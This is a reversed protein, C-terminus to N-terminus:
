SIYVCISYSMIQNMFKNQFLDVNELVNDSCFTWAQLRSLIQTLVHKHAKDLLIISPASTKVNMCVIVKFLDGIQAVYSM